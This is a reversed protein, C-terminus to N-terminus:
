ETDKVEMLQMVDALAEDLRQLRDEGLNDLRRRLLSIGQQPIRQALEQGSSTLRVIVIRNDTESRTRTVHGADELQSVITSAASPSAYLYDQIESVTAEEVDRLYLLVGFQRPRIGHEDIQRAIHRLHRHILLFKHLADRALPHKPTTM